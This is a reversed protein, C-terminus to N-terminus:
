DAGRGAYMLRGGEFYTVHTTGAGDIAVRVGGVDTAATLHEIAPKAGPHIAAVVLGASVSDTARYAMHLDGSPDVAASWPDSELTGGVDVTEFTLSPFAGYGYRVVHGEQRYGDFAVYVTGNRFTRSTCGASSWHGDLPALALLSWDSATKSALVCAHDEQSTIYRYGVFVDGAPGLAISPDVSFRSDVTEILWSGGSRAAYRLGGDTADTTYTAHVKGADDVSLEGSGGGEADVRESPGVVGAHRSVYQLGGDDRYLLHVDTDTAAAAVVAGVLPTPEHIWNGHELRAISIQGNGDAYAVHLGCRPDAAIAQSAAHDSIASYSWSPTIRECSPFVHGSDIAGGDVRSVVTGGTDDFGSRAGCAPTGLLLPAVFFL